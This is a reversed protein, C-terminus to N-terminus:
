AEPNPQATAAVPWIYWQFYFPLACINGLVLFAVWWSKQRSTLENHRLVDLVDYTVAFTLVLLTALHLGVMVLFSIPPDVFSYVGSNLSLSIVEYTAYMFFLSAYFVPWFSLGGLLLIFKRNM